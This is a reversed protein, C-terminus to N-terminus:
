PFLLLTAYRLSVPFPFQPLPLYCANSLCSINIFYKHSYPVWVYQNSRSPSRRVPALNYWVRISFCNCYPKKIVLTEYTYSNADTGLAPPPLKQRFSPSWDCSYTVDYGSVLSCGRSQVTGYGSMLSCGRSHVTGYCSMLSCGRSHVTCYGSMQSCGRSHVTDHVSMLSCCPTM